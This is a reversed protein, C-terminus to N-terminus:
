STETGRTNSGHGIYEAMSVAVNSAAPKGMRTDESRLGNAAGRPKDCSVVGKMAKQCRPM